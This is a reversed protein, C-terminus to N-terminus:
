QRTYPPTHRRTLREQYITPEEGSDHLDPAPLHKKLIAGKTHNIAHNRKLIRVAKIPENGNGLRSSFFRLSEMKIADGFIKRSQKGTFTIRACRVNVKM